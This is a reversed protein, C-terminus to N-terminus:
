IKANNGHALKNQVPSDWQQQM